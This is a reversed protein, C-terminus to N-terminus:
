TLLEPDLSWRVRGELGLEARIARAIRGVSELAADDAETGVSVGLRDYKESMSMEATLNAALLRLFEAREAETTGEFKLYVFAEQM